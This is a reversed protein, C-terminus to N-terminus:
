INERNKKRRRYKKNRYSLKNNKNRNWQQNKM